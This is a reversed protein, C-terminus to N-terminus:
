PLLKPRYPSTKVFSLSLVTQVCSLSRNRRESIECPSHMWKGQQIHGFHMNHTKGTPWFRRFDEPLTRAPLLFRSMAPFVDSHIPAKRDQTPSDTPVCFYMGGCLATNRDAQRHKARNEQVASIRLDPSLNREM